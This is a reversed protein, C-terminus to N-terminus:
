VNPATRQGLLAQLRREVQEDTLEPQTVTVEVSKLKPRTYQMLESAVRAHDAPDLAPRTLPKGDGDLVPSGDRALVPVRETLMRALEVAPDLGYSSLVEDLAQMNMGFRGHRSSSRRGNIQVTEDPVAHESYDAVTSLRPPMGALAAKSPSVM